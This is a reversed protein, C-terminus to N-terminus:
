EICIYRHYLNIYLNDALLNVAIGLLLVSCNNYYVKLFCTFAIEGELLKINKNTQIWEQIQTIPTISKMKLAFSKLSTMFVLYYLNLCDLNFIM